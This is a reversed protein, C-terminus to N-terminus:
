TNVNLKTLVCMFINHRVIFIFIFSCFDIKQTFILLYKIVVLVLHITNRFLSDVSDGTELYRFIVYKRYLTKSRLFIFICECTCHIWLPRFKSLLLPFSFKKEFIWFCDIKDTFFCVCLILNALGIRYEVYNIYKPISQTWVMFHTLIKLKNRNNRKQRWYKTKMESVSNLKMLLNLTTQLRKSAYYFTYHIITRCQKEFMPFTSLSYAHLGIKRM